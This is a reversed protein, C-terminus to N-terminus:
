PSHVEGNWLADYALLAQEKTEIGSALVFWWPCWSLRFDIRWRVRGSLSIDARIRYKM